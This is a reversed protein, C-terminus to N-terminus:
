RALDEIDVSAQSLDARLGAYISDDARQLGDVLFLAQLAARGEETSAFKLLADVVQERMEEPFDSVFAVTDNPVPPTTALVTVVEKVDPLDQVVLDRADVTTTGVDCIRNYVYLIVNSHSYVQIAGGLDVDPDIGNAMLTIRPLIYGSASNTDVWCMSRGRIDALSAIGSDARVVFQGQYGIAGLREAVLAAEVGHKQHALVYNLADLWVMHAAGGRLAEQVAEYNSTPSAQIVLGTEESIAEAIQEGFATAEDSSSSSVFSFVLPNEETGLKRGGCGSLLLVLVIASLLFTWALRSKETM